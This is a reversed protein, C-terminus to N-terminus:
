TYNFNNTIGGFVSCFPRRQKLYDDPMREGKVTIEPSKSLLQVMQQTERTKKHMSGYLLTQIDLCTKFQNYATRQHGEALEMGGLLEYTEAVESSFDGFIALKAPLSEQLMRLADPYKKNLVLFRCYNDQISLYTAHDAGLATQYSKLSEKYYREALDYHEPRRSAVYAEALTHAIQAAEQGSPVNSLVISRALLLYHFNMDQAGRAQEAAALDEYVGVCEMSNEGKRFKVLQLLKEYWEVAQAPKKSKMYLRGFSLSIKADVESMEEQTVGEELRLENAIKESKLLNQEAEKLNQLGMLARGLTHFINILCRLIDAREEESMPLETNTYMIDKAKEGHQKAQLALGKIELYGEALNAHAQAMKWHFDGYTIRALSVCRVLEQVAIAGEQNAKHMKARQEAQELKDEPPVMIAAEELGDMLKRRSRANRNPNGSEGLSLKGSIGGCGGAAGPSSLRVSGESCGERPAGGFVPSSM